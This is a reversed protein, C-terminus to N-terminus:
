LCDDSSGVQAELPPQSPSSNRKGSYAPPLFSCGWGGGSCLSLNHTHPPPACICCSPAEGVTGTQSASPYLSIASGVPCTPSSAEKEELDKQSFGLPQGKHHPFSPGLTEGRGPLCAHDIPTRQSKWLVSTNAGKSLTTPSSTLLQGPM